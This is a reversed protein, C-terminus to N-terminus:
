RCCEQGAALGALGRHAVGAAVCSGSGTCDISALYGQKPSPLALERARAWRGRSETVIMPQERILTDGRSEYGGGAVCEGGPRCDVTALFALQSASANAPLRIEVARGFSIGASRVRASHLSTPSASAVGAAAATTIAFAGASMLAVAARAKRM